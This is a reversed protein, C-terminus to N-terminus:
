KPKYQMVWTSLWCRSWKSLWPRRATPLCLAPPTTVHRPLLSTNRSDQYENWAEKSQYTSDKKPNQFCIHFTFICGRLQMVPSSGPMFQHVTQSQCATDACALKLQLYCPTLPSHWKAVAGWVLQHWSGGAMIEQSIHIQHTMPQSPLRCKSIGIGVLCGSTAGDMIKHQRVHCQSHKLMSTSILDSKFSSSAVKQGKAKFNNSARASNLRLRVSYLLQSSNMIKHRCLSSEMICPKVITKSLVTWASITSSPIDHQVWTTNATAM